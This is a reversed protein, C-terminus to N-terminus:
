KRLTCYEIYLYQDENCFFFFTGINSQAVIKDYFRITVYFLIIYAIYLIIEYM